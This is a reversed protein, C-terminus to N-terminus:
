ESVHQLKPLPNLILKVGRVKLLLDWTLPHGRNSGKEPHPNFGLLLWYAMLKAM